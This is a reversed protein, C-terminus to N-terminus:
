RRDAGLPIREIITFPSKTDSQHFICLDEVPQKEHCIKDMLKSLAQMVTARKKKNKISGTLTIHFKFEELVYPYWWKQLLQQQVFTLKAAKRRELEKQPPQKRFGHFERLCTEALTAMMGQDEPVLALFLGIEKLTFQDFAFPLQSQAFIKVHDVLDARSFKDQLVFPPVITGHLGYHRPNKTLEHIESSNLSPVATHKVPTNTEACRGLWNKGLLDLSSGPNPAFFIAYRNPM